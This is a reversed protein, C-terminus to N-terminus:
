TEYGFAEIFPRLTPLFPELQARYNHWRYRARRYIPEMVQSYSPTHVRDRAKAQDRYHLVANDWGVGLFDIAGRMGGEFDDVMDEYRIVHSRIPSLSAYHRWLGMVAAYYAVTNELSLFHAMSENLEFNQMFCSLCADCPHRLALLFQAGPFLRALAGAHLINLPLKDVLRRPARWDVFERAKDRYVRHLRAVDDSRLNALAAPYGGPLRDAAELIARVTPREDLSLLGPHSDLALELLTTGSRPFGILFIPPSDSAADAPMPSWSHVWAPDFRARLQGLRQLDAAPDYKGAEAGRAALAKGIRFQEFARPFEGLRDLIQGAELHIAAAHRSEGAAETLPQLRALAGALDGSRRECQALVLQLGAHTPDLALGGAAVSRAEEIEGREELLSALNYLAVVHRPNRTVAERLAALAEPIRRQRLRVVSLLNLAEVHGPSLALVKALADAADAIHDQGLQAAALGYQAEADRPRLAIAKRFAAVAAGFQGRDLEVAGLGGHADAHAPRLRIAQRFCEAAADNRGLQKLVGGLNSHAEVYLPQLRIAQRYATEADAYRGLDKLANGLNFHFDAMAPRLAIARRILEVGKAGDGMQCAAVGALHLADANRPDRALLRDYAAAAEAIRGDQHLAMADAMEDRPAATGRDDKSRVM